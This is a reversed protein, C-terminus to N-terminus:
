LFVLKAQISRQAGEPADGVAFFPLAFSAQELKPDREVVFFCVHLGKAAILVMAEADGLSGRLDDHGAVVPEM